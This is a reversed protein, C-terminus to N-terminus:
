EWKQTFMTRPRSKLCKRAPVVSRNAHYFQNFSAANAPEIAVENRGLESVNSPIDDASRSCRGDRLLQKTRLFGGKGSLPLGDRMTM